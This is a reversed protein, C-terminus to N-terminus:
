RHGSPARHHNAEALVFRGVMPKERMPARGPKPWRRCPPRSQATRDDQIRRAQPPSTLPVPLPERVSGGWSERVHDLFASPATLLLSLLRADVLTSTRLVRVTRPCPLQGMLPPWSRRRSLCHVPCGPPRISVGPSTDREPKFWSGGWCYVGVKVGGRGGPREEGTPHPTEM